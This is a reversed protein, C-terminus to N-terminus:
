ARVHTNLSLGVDRRLHTLVRYTERLWERTFKWYESIEKDDDWNDYDIGVGYPPSTVVLDVTKESMESMLKRGDGCYIKNKEM